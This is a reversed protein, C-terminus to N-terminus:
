KVLGRLTATIASIFAEADELDTISSKANDAADLIKTISDNLLNGRRELEAYLDRTKFFKLMFRQEWPASAVILRMLEDKAMGSTYLMDIKLEEM